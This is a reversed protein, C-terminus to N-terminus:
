MEATFDGTGFVFDPDSSTAAILKSSGNFYGSGGAFKYESSSLVPTGSTTITKSASSSDTFTTSGDAGSLHLLLTVNEYYPDINSDSYAILNGSSKDIALQFQNNDDGSPGDLM